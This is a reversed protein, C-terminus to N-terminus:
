AEGVPKHPANKAVFPPVTKTVDQWGKCHPCQVICIAASPTLRVDDASFLLLAGCEVCIQTEHWDALVLTM